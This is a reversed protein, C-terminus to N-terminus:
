MINKRLEMVVMAEDYKPKINEINSTSSSGPDDVLNSQTEVLEEKKIEIKNIREELAQNLKQKADKVDKKALKLRGKAENLENEM